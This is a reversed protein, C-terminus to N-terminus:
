QPNKAAIRDRWERFRADDPNLVMARGLLKLALENQELAHLCLALNFLTSTREGFIRLSEYFARAAELPRGLAMRLRGVQFPLDRNVPYFGAEALSLADAIVSRRPRPRAPM